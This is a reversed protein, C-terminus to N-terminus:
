GEFKSIKEWKRYKTTGMWIHLYKTTTYNELCMFCKQVKQTNIEKESATLLIMEKFLRTLCDKMEKFM